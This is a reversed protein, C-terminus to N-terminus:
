YEQDPEVDSSINGERDISQKLEPPASHAALTFHWAMAFVVFMSETAMEMLGALM